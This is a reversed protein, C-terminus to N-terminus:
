EGEKITTEEDFGVFEVRLWTPTFAKAMAEADQAMRERAENMAAEEEALKSTETINGVGALAGLSPGADTAAPVGVSGATFSINQANLVEIAGLIVNRGAIGAEGADIIGEPATLYVDGALPEELPGEVGDPDYTLTRIGSGVAPPQFQVVPVGEATFTLKPASVNIAAKSGRGANINGNDTWVTIDGGRFTMVRSENVNLDGTSFINIAGGSSTFIGTNKRESENAFFTSRGVDIHGNALIYVDSAEATTSIQSDTMAVSGAGSVAGSLLPRITTERVKEVVAKAETPDGEALLRSFEVGGDRLAQLYDVLMTRDVALDYGSTVALDSGESGLDPYFLSGITRIGSSNGLDIMGMAQVAMFGPGAQDIGTAYLVGPEKRLLLDGGCRLFTVDDPVVHQGLWRIDQINKGATLAAQESLYLEVNRIDGGATIRSATSDGQHLPTRFRDGIGEFFARTDANDILAMEGDMMARYISLYARSSPPESINSQFRDPFGHQYRDTLLSKTATYRVVRKQGAMPHGAPYIFTFAPKEYCAYVAEPALDSVLVEAHLRGGSYKGDIDAGAALQLNGSASPALVFQGLLNLNNGATIGVVPPLIGGVALLIDGRLAKIGVSADQAYDLPLDSSAAFVTNPRLTPNLIEGVSARGEATVSVAADFLEISQQTKFAADSGIDGMARIEGIGQRVLFRGNLDGGSFITLDGEGFAGAKGRFGAGAKVTVDGGGMAIVGGAVNTRAAAPGYRNETYGASWGKYSAQDFPDYGYDWAKASSWDGRSDVAGAVALRIDGGDRYYDYFAHLAQELFIEALFDVGGSVGQVYAKMDDLAEPWTERDEWRYQRTGGTTRVAASPDYKNTLVLDGRVGLVIDGTATQIAGDITLDRGVVGIIDGSYAGMGFKMDGNIMLGTKRSRGIAADRASAFRVVGSETYVAKDNAITLNGTTGVSRFLSLPNAGTFDAGAVLTLDWSDRAPGDTFLSEKPTPHDLIDQNIKLDGGARLALAGPASGPGYRWSTLDWPSALTLNGSSRIEIGPTLRFADPSWGEASLSALLSTEIQAAYAMFQLTHTRIAAIDGSSISADEYVRVAEVIVQDAGTIRGDLSMNVGAESRSARFRVTGGAGEGSGSVDIGAGEELAVHGRAAGITVHGGDSQGTTGTAAILAGAHLVANNGAFIEVTGGKDEGPAEIVGYVHVDGGDAALKVTRAQLTVPSDDTHQTGVYIDGTRTRVSMARNFGARSVKDNLDSFYGSDAMGNMDVAFAGGLGTAGGNGAVTGDLFIRGEPAFFSLSGGDLLTKAKLEALQDQDLSTLVDVPMHVSVDLAAGEQLRIDGQRAELDIVGGPYFMLFREEAMTGAAVAQERARGGARITSGDTLVLTDTASMTVQGSPIDVVGGHVIEGAVFRLRGGVSDAASLLSADSTRATVIRGTGANVWVDAAHYATQTKGTDSAYVPYEKLETGMAAAALTLNGGTKLTGQGKFVTRGQSSLSVSDFGDLVLTSEALANAGSVYGLDVRLESLASVDLVGVDDLAYETGAVTVVAPGEPNSQSSSVGSNAITVRNSRISVEATGNDHPYLDVPELAVIRQADLAFGDSVALAADGLFILDTRSKLYVEDIAGFAKWLKENLYLGDNGSHSGAALVVKDATLRLASHDVQIDGQFDIQNADLSAENRAHVLSGQGIILGQDTGKGPTVLRVTGQAGTGHVQANPELEVRNWAALSVSGAELVSGQEVTVADADGAQKERLTGDALYPNKGIHIAEFGADSLERASLVMRGTLEKPGPTNAQFSSPLLAAPRGITIDAASLSLAGGQFGTMPDALFSGAVVATSSELRFDGAGGSTVGFGTGSETLYSLSKLQYSASDSSIAERGVAVMDFHGEKLVESAPRIAYLRATPDQRQAGMVVSHGVSLLYGEQSVKQSPMRNVAGLDSIALAGPVFAYEEPLLVYDGDPLWEMGALRVKDGPMSVSHDPLIVRCGELPNKSGEVGSPLYEYAFVGGGGSLDIKSGKRIIAEKGQIFVQKEPLSDIEVRNGSGAASKDPVTWAQGKLRGYLVPMAGAVSILSGDDVYVRGTDQDALLSIFGLPATLSGQLVINNAVVTIAGGASFVPKGSDAIGSLGPLIVADGGARVTFDSGTEPFIRRAQLIMNNSTELMGAYKQSFAGTLAYRVESLRIDEIANLHLRDLGGAAVAGQLDIWDGSLALNNNGAAQGRNLIQNFQSESAYGQRTNALTVWAAHLRVDGDTRIEPADLTLRRGLNIDMSGLLTLSDVSGFRLDDFGGTGYRLLDERSIAMDGLSNPNEFSIDLAAGPLGALSSQGLLDGDLTLNTAYSLSLSGPRGAVTVFSLGGDQDIFPTPTPASGSVDVRSGSQFVLSGQQANLVIEGGPLAEKHISMGSLPGGGAPVLTGAASIRAGRAIHLAPQATEDRVVDPETATLYIKGAPAEITGGIDVHPGTVAVHGKPAVRVSAGPEVRVAAKLNEIQGFPKARRNTEFVISSTGVLEMPVNMVGNEASLLFGYAEAVDIFPATAPMGADGFLPVVSKIASPCLVTGKTVTIDNESVLALHAFGTGALQRTGVALIDKGSFGEPLDSDFTFDTPLTDPANKQVVIDKAYLRLAGGNAGLLARGRLDGELSLTAGRIELSGADGATVKGKPDIEWGGGVNLRAGPRVYIGSGGKAEDILVIRGGATHGTQLPGGGAALSNDITEGAASLVSGGALFIRKKEAGSFPQATDRISLSISGAPVRIEGQHLITGAIVSFRGADKNYQDKWKEQRNGARLSLVADPETTFLGNAYIEVNSLGARELTPVSLYTNNQRDAPFNADPDFGSPLPNDSATILVNDAVFDFSEQAGATFFAQAGDGLVLTGGAPERLGVAATKGNEDLPDQAQTQLFGKGASGLLTGDIAMRPAIMALRGADRGELHAFAFDMLPAAGGAYLGEFQEAIGYRDHVKTQPNGPGLIQDYVIWQPANELNYLRTGSVLKATDTWGESYRIGGGSFDILAGSQFIIDGHRASLTIEGGQTARQRATLEESGLAGSVDGIGAGVTVDIAVAKGKLLGDKQGYDDRLENSNMQVEVVKEAAPREVWLGATSLVGARELYVRDRAELDITGSPAEMVGRHEITKPPTNYELGSVQIRGGNFPFSAHVKEDSDTIPCTTLSQEGTVVKESALLEIQGAKKVATVARILGDQRVVSGYMGATGTDALITGRDLNAAQGAGTTVTVALATKVGTADPAIKVHTGAAMGIQGVPAALLGNNEVTPGLLFISGLDDTQIIGHNSVAGARSFDPDGTYNEVRFELIGNLFDDNTTNLSSGILSHVNVQSNPGFLIGNQNILYIRGDASLKGLIQSPNQDYIRNLAAWNANKQQDFHTSAQEGINFTHWDIIAKEQSQHIVLQNDSIQDVSSVGRIIGKVSPLANPAVKPLNPGKGYFGPIQPGGFGSTAYFITTLAFITVLFCPTIKRKNQKMVAGLKFHGNDTSRAM